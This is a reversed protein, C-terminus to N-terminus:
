GGFLWDSARLTYSTLLAFGLYLIYMHLYNMDYESSPEFYRTSVYVLEPYISPFLVHGYIHTVIFNIEFLHEKNDTLSTLQEVQRFDCLIM